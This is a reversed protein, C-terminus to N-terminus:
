KTHVGLYSQLMINRYVHQAQSLSSLAASMASQETWASGMLNGDITLLDPEEGDIAFGGTAPTGKQAALRCSCSHYM